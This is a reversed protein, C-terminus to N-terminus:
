IKNEDLRHDGCWDSSFVVPFGNINPAHRRCRGIVRHGVKQNDEPTKEKFWCCSQCVMGSNRYKWPDKRTDVTESEAPIPLKGYLNSM